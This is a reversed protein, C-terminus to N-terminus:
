RPVREKEATKRATPAPSDSPKRTAGTTSPGTASPATTSAGTTAAEAARALCAQRDAACQALAADVARATERRVLDQAQSALPPGATDSLPSLWYVLGVVAAARLLFGM